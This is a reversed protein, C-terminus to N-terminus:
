RKKVPAPEGRHEYAYDALRIVETQHREDEDFQGAIRRICSFLLHPKDDYKYACALLDNIAERELRYHTIPM